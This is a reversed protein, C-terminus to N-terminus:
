AFGLYPSAVLPYVPLGQPQTVAADAMQAALLDLVKGAVGDVSHTAGNIM